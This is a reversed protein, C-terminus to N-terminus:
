PDVVVELARDRIEAALPGTNPHVWETLQNGEADLFQLSDVPDGDPNELMFEGTGFGYVGRVRAWEEPSDGTRHCSTCDRSTASTTHQFFPAFGINADSADTKRFAGVTEDEVTGGVVQEGDPAFAAMQVQHSPMVAQAKGSIGQGLILSDLSYMERSGGVSGITKKGTQYDVQSFRLDVTVHCGLCFLNWGSHCTDCTLSDAHSWDEDNVAMAAHAKSTPEADTLVQKVQPVIHDKKDVLGKLVVNGNASSLQPLTRGSATHFNGDAGPEVAERVTGHCDECTIDVQGKSTAHLLGDGHVDTGVHCDACHMGAEYHVDPPTEDVDNTGDEDLLYYGATHGYASETWPVANPPTDKFGGERIGRFNLGIRGGQFHCTACQETPIATTIEHVKPYAPHNKPMAEDDGEYVGDKGYIMHCASCGTSRYLHASNNRPYGAAHCTNCSKSLYHDYASELFADPDNELEDLIQPGKAPTLPILECSVGPSPTCNPLSVAYSGYYAERDQFGALFRTPMYHGANTTMISTKMTAAHSPHCRGCTEDVVRIDSPNIFQVYAPDLADLQDPAMDKIYGREALPLGEGRVDDYNSPIPVHATELTTADPDGGHCIVCDGEGGKGEGFYPHIPEIGVHCTQCQDGHVPYVWPEDKEPCGALVFFLLARWM